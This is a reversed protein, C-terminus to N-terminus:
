AIIMLPFKLNHAKIGTSYQVAKYGRPRIMDLFATSFDATFNKQEGIFLWM